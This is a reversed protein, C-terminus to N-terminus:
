SRGSATIQPESRALPAGVVRCLVLRIVTDHAVVLVRGTPHVAAIGDLAALFRAAADAPVEGGPLPAGAPDPVFREHDAPFRERMEHSTLGEGAGFDLERLAADVVVDLGAAAASPAATECARTLPSAHM